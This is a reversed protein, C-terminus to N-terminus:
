SMDAIIYAKRDAETMHDVRVTPVETMGCEIAAMWKGHGAIITGDADVLIPTVMGFRRISAAIQSIQKKSHTRANNEYPKLTGIAVYRIKLELAKAMIAEKVVQLCIALPTTSLPREECIIM